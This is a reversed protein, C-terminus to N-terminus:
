KTEVTSGHLVDASDAAWGGEFCGVVSWVCARWRGQLQVGQVVGFELVRM